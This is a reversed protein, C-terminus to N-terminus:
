GGSAEDSADTNEETNETNETSEETQEEIVPITDDEDDIVPNEEIPEDEPGGFDLDAKVTM